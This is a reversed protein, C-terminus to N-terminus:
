DRVLGGYSEPSVVGSISIPLEGTGNEASMGQGRLAELNKHAAEFYRPSLRIAEEFYVAAAEHDGLRMAVYGVDNYAVAPDAVRTITQVAKEYQKQRALVLGLNRWAQESGAGAAATLDIVAERYNGALYHSYGRNNLISVSDPKIELAADFASIAESNNGLMDQIIGIGNHARWLTSDANVARELLPLAEEQKGGRLYLLGLSQLAATDDPHSHLLTLYARGAMDANNRKEHIAAIRRLAYTNDPALDYCRVYMYLALDLNGQALAAEARVLADEASAVPFETAFVVEPEGEYLERAVSDGKRVLGQDDHSSVPASACGSLAIAFTAILLTRLSANM